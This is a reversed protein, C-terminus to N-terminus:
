ARCRARAREADVDGPAVAEVDAGRGAAEGVAQQLAAGGPHGREVDGVPLDVQPQALIRAHGHDLPEVGAAELGRVQGERGSRAM